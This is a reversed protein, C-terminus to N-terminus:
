GFTSLKGLFLSSKGSSIIIRGALALDFLVVM